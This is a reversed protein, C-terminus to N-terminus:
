LPLAEKNGEFLQTNSPLEFYNKERNVTFNIYYTKVYRWTERYRHELGTRHPNYKTFM